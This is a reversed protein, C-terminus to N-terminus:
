TPAGFLVSDFEKPSIKAQEWARFREAPVFVLQQHPDGEIRRRLAPVSKPGVPEVKLYLGLGQSRVIVRAEGDTLAILPLDLARSVDVAQSPQRKLAAYDVGSPFLSSTAARLPAVRAGIKWLHVRHKQLRGDSDLGLEALLSAIRETSLSPKGRLLASLNSPQIGASRAVDGQTRVSLDLLARILELNPMRM